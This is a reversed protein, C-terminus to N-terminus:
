ACGYSGGKLLADGYIKMLEVYHAVITQAFKKLGEIMTKM